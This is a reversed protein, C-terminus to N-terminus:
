QPALSPAAEAARTTRTHELAWNLADDAVVEWGNMGAMYHTRGSYQKSDTVSPARRQLKLVTKNLAPPSIHDNEGVILLLPARKPNAYDIAAPSQRSLAAYAAEFFARNTGPILVVTPADTSM